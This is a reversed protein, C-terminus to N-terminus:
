EADEKGETETYNKNEVIDIYEGIAKHVACFNRFGDDDYLPEEDYSRTEFLTLNLVESLNMLQSLIEYRTKM